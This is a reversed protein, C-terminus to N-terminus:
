VASNDQEIAWIGTSRQSQARFAQIGTVTQQPSVTSVASESVDGPIGSKLDVINSQPLGWSSRQRYIEEADYGCPPFIAASVLQPFRRFDIAATPQPSNM